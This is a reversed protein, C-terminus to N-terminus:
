PPAWYSLLTSPLIRSPVYCPSSISFHAKNLPPQHACIIQGPTWAKQSSSNPWHYAWIILLRWNWQERMFVETGMGLASNYYSCLNLDLNCSRHRAAWLYIARVWFHALVGPRYKPGNIKKYQKWSLGSEPAWRGEELNLRLGECSMRVWGFFFNVSMWTTHAKWNIM